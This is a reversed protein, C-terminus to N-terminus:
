DKEYWGAPDTGDDLKGTRSNLIGGRVADSSPKDTDSTQASGALFGILNGAFATVVGGIAKGLQGLLKLYTTFGLKFICTISYGLFAGLVLGLILLLLPTGIISDM